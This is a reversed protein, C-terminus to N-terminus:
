RQNSLSNSWINMIWQLTLRTCLMVYLKIFNFMDYNGAPITRLLSDDGGKFLDINQNRWEELTYFSVPITIDNIYFHPTARYREILMNMLRLQIMLQIALTWTWKKFMPLMYIYIYIKYSYLVHHFRLHIVFVFM